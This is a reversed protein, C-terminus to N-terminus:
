AKKIWLCFLNFAGDYYMHTRNKTLNKTTNALDPYMGDHYM